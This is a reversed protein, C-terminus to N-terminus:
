GSATVPPGAFVDYLRLQESCPDGAISPLIRRVDIWAVADAQWVWDRHVICLLKGPQVEYAAADLLKRDTSFVHQNRQVHLGGGGQELMYTVLHLEDATGQDFLMKALNPALRPRVEDIRRELLERRAASLQGLCGRTDPVDIQPVLVHHEHYTCEGSSRFDSRKSAVVALRGPQPHIARLADLLPGPAVRSTLEDRPMVKGKCLCDPVFGVLDELSRGRQAWGACFRALDPGARDV